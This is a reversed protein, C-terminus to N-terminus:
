TPSISNRDIRGPYNSGDLLAIPMSYVNISMTPNPDLKKPLEIDEMSPTDPAGPAVVGAEAEAESHPISAMPYSEVELELFFM